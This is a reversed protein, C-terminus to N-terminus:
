PGIGTLSGTQEINHLAEEGPQVPQPRHFRGGHLHAVLRVAPHRSSEEDWCGGRRESRIRPSRIADDASRSSRSVTNSEAAWDRLGHSARPTARHICRVPGHMSLAQWAQTKKQTKSPDHRDESQGAAVDRGARACGGRRLRGGRARPTRVGGLPCTRVVTQRRGRCRGDVLARDIDESLPQRLGVAPGV